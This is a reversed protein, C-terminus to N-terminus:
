QGNRKEKRRAIEKLAAAEQGVLHKPTQSFDGAELLKAFEDTGLIRSTEILYQFIGCLMKKNLLVNLNLEKLATVVESYYAADPPDALPMKPFDPPTWERVDEEGEKSEKKGFYEEYLIPLGRSLADNIIANFSSKRDDREMLADILEWLGVDSIRIYRRERKELDFKM